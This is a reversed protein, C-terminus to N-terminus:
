VLTIEKLFVLLQTFSEQTDGLQDEHGRAQQRPIVVGLEVLSVGIHQRSRVSNPSDTRFQPTIGQKGISDFKDIRIVINASDLGVALQADLGQRGKLPHQFPVIDM